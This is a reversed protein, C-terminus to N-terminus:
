RWKARSNRRMKIPDSHHWKRETELRYQLLNDLCSGGASRFVAPLSPSINEPQEFIAAPIAFVFDPQNRSLDFQAVAANIVGFPISTEEEIRYLLEIGILSDPDELQMRGEPSAGCHIFFPQFAGAWALFYPRTSRVPGIKPPLDLTYIALLRTCHGEVGLGLVGNDGAGIWATPFAPPVNDVMVAVPRRSRNFTSLSLGSWFTRKEEEPPRASSESSGRAPVEAKEHVPKAKWDFVASFAYSDPLHRDAWRHYEM